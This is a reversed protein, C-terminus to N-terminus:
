NLSSHQWNRSIVPRSAMVIVQLIVGICILIIMELSTMLSSGKIIRQSQNNLVTGEKMQIDSLLNLNNTARLFAQNFSIMDFALEANQNIQRFYDNEIAELADIDAKLSSLFRAEDKTLVTKEYLLILEHIPLNHRQIQSLHNDATSADIDDVVLKKQYLHDTLEYIYGEVLLRDELVSSFSHGLTSMQHRGLINTTLLIIFIIAM